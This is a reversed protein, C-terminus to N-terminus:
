FNEADSTSTAYSSILWSGGAQTLGIVVPTIGASGGNAVTDSSAFIIAGKVLYGTENKTVSGIVIRDPWPSSVTRGPANTPNAEWVALLSPAVFPAYMAAISSTADPALLSVRQLAAGFLSVIRSVAAGDPDTSTASSAVVTSTAGANGIAAADTTSAASSAVTSSADEASQTAVYEVTNSSAFFLFYGVMSLGVIIILVVVIMIRVIRM